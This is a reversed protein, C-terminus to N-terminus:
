RMTLPAPADSKTNDSSPLEVDRQRDCVRPVGFFGAIPACAAGTVVGAVTGVVAGAAAGPLLMCGLMIAGPTGDCPNIPNTPCAAGSALFQGGFFTLSALGGVIAGSGAGVQVNLGFCYAADDANFHRETQKNKSKDDSMEQYVPEDSKQESRLM